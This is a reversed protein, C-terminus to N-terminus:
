PSAYSVLSRSLEYPATYSLQYHTLKSFPLYSNSDRSPVGPPEEHQALFSHPYLSVPRLAHHLIFSLVITIYSHINFILFTLFLPMTGGFKLHM